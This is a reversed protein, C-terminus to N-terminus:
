RYMPALKGSRTVIGADVLSQGLQARTMHKVRRVARNLTVRLPLPKVPSKFSSNKSGNRKVFDYEGL